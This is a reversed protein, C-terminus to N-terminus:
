VACLSVFDTRSRRSRSKRDVPLELSDRRCNCARAFSIHFWASAAQASARDENSASAINSFIPKIGDSRFVAYSLVIFCKFIALSCFAAIALGKLFRGRSRANRSRMIGWFDEEKSQRMNGIRTYHIQWKFPLSTISPLGRLRIPPKLDWPFACVPPGPASRPRDDMACKQQHVSGNACAGDRQPPM